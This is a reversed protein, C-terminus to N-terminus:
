AATRFRKPPPDIGDWAFRLALRPRLAVPPAGGPPHLVFDAKGDRTIRWGGHHLQMHHYRCLLIGRDVDTRGQDQQWEDIHHAECYSAPRDCGHWRCGGDRIALAIRQRPTFLRHERGVDLPNGCSDVTVAITATDCIRQDILAAPLHVLGDETHGGNADGQVHVLRVGAQRTGFVTEADALSGARLLDIILDYTLQENSRPDDVLAEADKKEDPDVFRPGGRRPRMAADVISRVWEYSEDDFDIRAHKAGDADCWTRFTRQEYREMFRRTADAPDLRDRITRSQQALEEVTRASAEEALQEAALSWAERIAAAVADASEEPTTGAEPVPPEGLGRLIAAHQDKSLRGTMLADSLPAHWARPPAPPAESDRLADDPSDDGTDGLLAEGVRIEKAAESRSSGTMEQILSTSNRHGLKQALGDHGAPRTSREAVVGSAIIRVREAGRMLADARRLLNLVQEDGFERVVSPLEDVCVEAGLLDVLTTVQERLESAIAM